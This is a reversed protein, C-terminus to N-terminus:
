HLRTRSRFRALSGERGDSRAALCNKKVLEVAPRGRIRLCQGTRIVLTVQM